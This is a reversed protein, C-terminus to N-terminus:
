PRGKTGMAATAREADVVKRILTCRCNGNCRSRQTPIPLVGEPQWGMDAFTQCDVCNHVVFGEAVYEHVDEVELNYVVCSENSQEGLVAYLPHAHGNHRHLSSSLVHDSLQWLPNTGMATFDKHGFIGSGLSAATGAGIGPSRQFVLLLSTWDTTMPTVSLFEEARVAAGLSNILFSYAPLRTRDTSVLPITLLGITSVMRGERNEIRSPWTRGFGAASGWRLEIPEDSFPIRHFPWLRNCLSKAQGNLNDFTSNLLELDSQAFIPNVVFLKISIAGVPHALVIGAM